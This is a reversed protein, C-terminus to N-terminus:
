LTKVTLMADCIENNYIAGFPVIAKYKFGVRQIFKCARENKVPTLGTISQIFPEEIYESDRWDKLIQDTITRCIHLAEQPSMLPSCSFHILGSKGFVESITFEAVLELTDTDVVYHMKKTLQAIIHWYESSVNKICKDVEPFRDSILDCELLIDWYRVLKNTPLKTAPMVVYKDLKIKNM